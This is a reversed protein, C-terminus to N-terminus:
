GDLGCPPPAKRSHACRGTGHLRGHPHPQGPTPVLPLTSSGEDDLCERERRGLAKAM